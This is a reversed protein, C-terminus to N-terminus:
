VGQCQPKKEDKCKGRERDDRQRQSERTERQTGRMQKWEGQNKKSDQLFCKLSQIQKANNLRVGVERVDRGGRGHLSM